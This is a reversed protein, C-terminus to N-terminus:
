RATALGADVHLVTGTVYTSKDSALWVCAEAIDQPQGLRGLLSTAAVYAAMDDGRTDLVSRLMPTDIAGPAVANVRIGNRGYELAAVKTMGNVGHKAAAYAVKGYGPRFGRISSLNIISGAIDHELMARIEYKMCLAVGKLDIAMLRDWYDEDFEAIPKDDPAVAANNVAIDLRGFSEITTAVLDQVSQSSSVDTPVFLSRGGHAEIAAAVNAGQEHDIDAVVVAAGAQALAHSTAEGMGMAGGTVIAVRGGLESGNM